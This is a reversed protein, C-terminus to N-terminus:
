HGGTDSGVRDPVLQRGNELVFRLYMGHHAIEDQAILRIAEAVGPQRSRQAEGQLGRAPLGCELRIRAWRQEYNVYTSREQLM